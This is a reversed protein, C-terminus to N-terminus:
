QEFSQKYSEWALSRAVQWKPDNSLDISTLEDAAEQLAMRKKYQQLWDQLLMKIQEKGLSEVLADEVKLTIQTM